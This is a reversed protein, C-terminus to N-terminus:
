SRAEVLQQVLVALDRSLADISFRERFLVHGAKALSGALGWDGRLRLIADALAEPDGAPVLAAHVDPVLAERVAPTDATVVPRGVALADFVKNPIVRQAKPNTGFIGLCLHSTAIMERLTDYPVRGVFTINGVALDAALRRVYLYTPGSGVLTFEIEGTRMEVIKAARVITDVGHLPLFGGYFFVRFPGDTSPLPEPSMIDDDAGVWVRTFRQAPLHVLDSLYDIHAQTDCLVHDAARCALVDELWYRLATPSRWRATGRDDVASEYLPVFADFIVPASPGRGLRATFVDAHGPFGVLIADVRLRRIASYLHPTRQPWRAPDSLIPVEAGARRLAKALIRNRAYSPDHHGVQAITMGM